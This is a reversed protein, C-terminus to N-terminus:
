SIVAGSVVEPNSELEVADTKVQSGYDLKILAELLVKPEYKKGYRGSTESKNAHGLIEAYNSGACRSTKSHQCAHSWLL